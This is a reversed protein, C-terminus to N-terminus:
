RGGVCVGLLLEERTKAWSDRHESTLVGVPYDCLDPATELIKRVEELIFTPPAMALMGDPCEYIVDLKYFQFIHVFM